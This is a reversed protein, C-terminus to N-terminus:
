YIIIWGRETYSIKLRGPIVVPVVCGYDKTLSTMCRVCMAAVGSTAYCNSQNEVSTGEGNVEYTMNAHIDKSSLAALYHLRTIILNRL